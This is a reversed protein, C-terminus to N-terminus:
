VQALVQNSGAADVSICTNNRKLRDSEGIDHAKMPNTLLWLIQSVFLQVRCPVPPKRPDPFPGPASTM